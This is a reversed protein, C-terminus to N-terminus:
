ASCHGSAYMKLQLTLATAPPWSLMREPVYLPTTRMQDPLDAQRDRNTQEKQFASALHFM